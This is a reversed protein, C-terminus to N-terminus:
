RRFFSTQFTMKNSNETTGNTNKYGPIKLKYKRFFKFKNNDEKKAIEKNSGMRKIKRKLLFRIAILPVILHLSHLCYRGLIFSAFSKSLLVKPNFRHSFQLFYFEIQNDFVEIFFIGSQFIL